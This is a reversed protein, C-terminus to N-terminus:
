RTPLLSPKASLPLFIQFCHSVQFKEAGHEVV